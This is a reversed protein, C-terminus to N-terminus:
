ILRAYRFFGPSIRTKKNQLLTKDTGARSERLGFCDYRHAAFKGAVAGVKGAGPGSLVRPFVVLQASRRLRAIPGPGYFSGAFLNTQNVRASNARGDRDRHEVNQPATV